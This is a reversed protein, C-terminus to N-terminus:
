LHSLHRRLRRWAPLLTTVSLALGGLSLTILLIDWAPRAFYLVPLDFSHLGNYLWRNLRSLRTHRLPITAHQPDVYLWTQDPDLYRARYVPLSKAGRRDYYYADYTDLAVLDRAMGGPVADRFVEFLDAQAFRTFAGDQPADLWVMRQDQARDAAHIATLDPNVVSLATALGMPRYAAVFPRTRFQRVDLEKSVFDVALAQQAAQLHAPDLRSLDLPGGTLAHTQQATPETSPAWDLPTLSLAGSLVWTFTTLGFLLGAYHHWWLWGAYPSRAPVRKLRFRKSASFRWIGIVLGSLSLVCGLLAAYIISYRWLERQERFRPVYTWHLVAGAYGLWRGRATTKMVPEGTRESVYIVTDAGDGLAVRHMPLFNPLGGDLTWQDPRRLLEVYRATSAREPFYVRVIALADDASLRGFPAGTDAFVTTWRGASSLRYVPRGSLMGVRVRDPTVGATAAATRVPVALTALDLPPMRALREEATLTPMRAYMMVVGSVFWVVFLLCGVIGLWRHAYILAKRWDTVVARVRAM